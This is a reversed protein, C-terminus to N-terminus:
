ESLSCVSSSFIELLSHASMRLRPRSLSLDGAGRQGGARAMHAAQAAGRARAHGGRGLPVTHTADLSIEVSSFYLRSMEKGGSMQADFSTVM